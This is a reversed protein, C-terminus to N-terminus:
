RSILTGTELVGSDAVLEFATALGNQGMLFVLREEPSYLKTVKGEHVVGHVFTHEAVPILDIPGMGIPPLLQLQGDLNRILVPGGELEYTGLYDALEGGHPIELPWDAPNAEVPVFGPQHRYDSSEDMAWPVIRELLLREAEWSSGAVNYNGALHVIVLDLEPVVWIKQGGNGSASHVVLEGYPLEIRDHWWQYGYSGVRVVGNPYEIPQESRPVLPALSRAIWEEDLIRAGEWTGGNAIMQGFKLMDRPRLWLSGAPDSARAMPWPEAGEWVFAPHDEWTATGTWDFRDIDLPEFLRERMYDAYAQGTAEHLILGLLTTAGSSYVWRSGPEADLPLGLLFRSPDRSAYMATEPNRPDSYPLTSQDWRLGPTMTLLHSVTIDDIGPDGLAESEAFFEAMPEDVSRIAGEAMAAGVLASTFSKGASRTTHLTEADFTLTVTEAYDGGEPRRDTGTFYEEYVLRGDKAVLVAHVNQYDGRRIAATMTELPERSLGLEEPAVPSWGDDLTVPLRYLAAAEDGGGPPPGSDIGCGALVSAVLVANLGGRAGPMMTRGENPGNRGVNLRDRFRRWGGTALQHM